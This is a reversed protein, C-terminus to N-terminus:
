SGSNVMNRLEALDGTEASVDKAAIVEIPEAKGSDSEDGEGGCGGVLYSRLPHVMEMKKEEGILVEPPWFIITHPCQILMVPLNFRFRTIRRM